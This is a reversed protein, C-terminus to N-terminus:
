DEDSQEEAPKSLPQLICQLIELQGPTLSGSLIGENLVIEVELNALENAPTKEFRFQLLGSPLAIIGGKENEPSVIDVELDEIRAEKISKHSKEESETGEGVAKNENSYDMRGLSLCVLHDNKDEIFISMQEFIINMHSFINEFVDEVTQIGLNEFDEATTDDENDSGSAQMDAAERISKELSMKM